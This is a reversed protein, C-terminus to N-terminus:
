SRAGSSMSLGNDAILDKYRLRKGVIQRTVVGMAPTTDRDKCMFRMVAKENCSSVPSLEKIIKGKAKRHSEM